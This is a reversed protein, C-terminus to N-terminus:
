TRRDTRLLFSARPAPAAAPAAAVGAAELVVVVAGEGVRAGVAVRVEKVVGAASSPVEMTAKDSELTLLPDDVKVTDGVKVNLSVIAGQVQASLTTDRVAEVVGDVSAQQAAGNALVEHIKLPAADAAWAGQAALLSSLLAATALRPLLM